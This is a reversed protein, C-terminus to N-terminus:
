GQLGSFRLWRASLWRGVRKRLSVVEPCECFVTRSAQMLLKIAEHESRPDTDRQSFLQSDVLYEVAHGLTELARGQERSGRRRVRRSRQAPEAERTTEAAYAALVAQEYTSENAPFGGPMAATSMPDDEVNGIPEAGDM